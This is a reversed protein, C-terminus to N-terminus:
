NKRKLLHSDLLVLPICTSDNRTASSEEAMDDIWELCVSDIGSWWKKDYISWAQLLIMISPIKEHTTNIRTDSLFNEMDKSDNVGKGTVTRASLWGIRYINKQTNDELLYSLEKTKPNYKWEANGLEYYHQYLLPFSTDSYLYWSHKDTKFWFYISKYTSYTSDVAWNMWSSISNWFTMGKILFLNKYSNM